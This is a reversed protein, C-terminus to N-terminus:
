KFIKKFTKIFLIIGHLVTRNYFLDEFLRKYKAYQNRSQNLDCDANEKKRTVQEVKEKLESVTGPMWLRYWWSDYEDYKAKANDLESQYSSSQRSYKNVDSEANDRKIRLESRTQTKEKIDRDFSNSAIELMEIKKDSAEIKAEIIKIPDKKGSPTLRLLTSLLNM